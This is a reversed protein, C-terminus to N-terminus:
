SSCQPYRVQARLLHPASPRSDGGDDGHGARLHPRRRAGLQRTLLRALKYLDQPARWSGYYDESPQQTLYLDLYDLAVRRLSTEFARKASDEGVDAIWLKTTVFLEERQIGSAAIARGVTEENQWAAAIDLM